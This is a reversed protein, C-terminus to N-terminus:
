LDLSSDSRRAQLTRLQQHLGDSTGRPVALIHGLSFAQALLRMLLAVANEQMFGQLAGADSDWCSKGLDTWLGGVLPAQRYHFAHGDM